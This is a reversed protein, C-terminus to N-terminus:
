LAKFVIGMAGVGLVDLLRHGPPGAFDEIRTSRESSLDKAIMKLKDLADKEPETDEGKGVALMAEILAGMARAEGTMSAPQERQQRPILSDEGPRGLWELGTIVAEAKGLSEPGRYKVDTPFRFLVNGPTLNRHVFGRQHIAELGRQIQWVWKEIWTFPLTRQERRLDDLVSRLSPTLFPMVLAFPPWGQDAFDRLDLRRAASLVFPSRFDILARDLQELSKDANVRFARHTFLKIALRSSERSSLWVQGFDGIGVFQHLPFAAEEAPPM